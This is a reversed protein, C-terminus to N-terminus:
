STPPRRTALSLVAHAREPMREIRSSFFVRARMRRRCPALRLCRAHSYAGTVVIYRSKESRQIGIERADFRRCRPLQTSTQVALRM